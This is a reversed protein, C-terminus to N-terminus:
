RCPPPLQLRERRTNRPTAIRAPHSLPSPQTTLSCTSPTLVPPRQSHRRSSNDARISEESVARSHLLTSLPTAAEDGVGDSSCKNHSRMSDCRAGRIRRGKTKTQKNRGGHRWGGGGRRKRKKEKRQDATRRETARVVMAVVCMVCRNLMTLRSALDHAHPRSSPCSSPRRLAIRGNPENAAATRLRRWRQRRQQGAITQTM